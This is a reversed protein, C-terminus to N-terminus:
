CGQWEQPAGGRRGPRRVHLGGQGHGPLRSDGEGEARAGKRELPTLLAPEAGRRFRPQARGRLGRRRAAPAGVGRGSRGGRWRADVIPDTAEQREDENRGTSHSTHAVASPGSPPVQRGVRTPYRPLRESTLAARTAIGRVHVCPTRRVPPGRGSPPPRGTARASPSRG